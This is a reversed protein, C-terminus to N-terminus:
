AEGERVRMRAQIRNVIRQCDAQGLLGADRLTTACTTLDKQAEIRHLAFALVFEDDDAEGSLIKGSIGAIQEETFGLGRCRSRTFVCAAIRDAQSVTVAHQNQNDSM